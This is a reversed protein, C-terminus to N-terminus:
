RSSESWCCKEKIIDQNYIIKPFKCASINIEYNKFLNLLEIAYIHNNLHKNSFNVVIDAAQICDSTISNLHSVKHISIKNARLFRIIGNKSYDKNLYNHLDDADIEQIKETYIEDLYIRIVANKQIKGNEVLKKLMLAIMENRKLKAQEEDKTPEYLDNKCTWVCCLADALEFQRILNEIDAKKYPNKKNKIFKKALYNGKIEKQKTIRKKAEIFNNIFKNRKNKNNFLIGGYLVHKDSNKDSNNLFKGSDDLYLWYEM